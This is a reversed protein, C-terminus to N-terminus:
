ALTVTTEEAEAGPTPAAELALSGEVAPASGAGDARGAGEDGLESREAVSAVFAAEGGTSGLPPTACADTAVGVSVVEGLGGSASSGAAAGTGDGASGDVVGSSGTSWASRASPAPEVSSALGGASVVRASASTTTSGWCVAWFPGAFAAADAECSGVGNV